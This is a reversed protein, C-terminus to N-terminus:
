ILPLFAKSFSEIKAMRDAVGDLQNAAVGQEMSLRDRDSHRQLPPEGFTDTYGLGSGRLRDCFRELRCSEGSIERSEEFPVRYDLRHPRVLFPLRAFRPEGQRDPDPRHRSCILTPRKCDTVM